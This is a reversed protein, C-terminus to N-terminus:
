FDTVSTNKEYNLAAEWDSEFELEFKNYSFDSLTLTVDEVIWQKIVQNDTVDKNASEGYKYDVIFEMEAVDNKRGELVIKYLRSDEDSFVYYINTLAVSGIIMKDNKLQYFNGGNEDDDKEVKYFVFPQGEVIVSDIHTGWEIGRFSEIRDDQAQLSFTLMMIMVVTFIYRMTKPN